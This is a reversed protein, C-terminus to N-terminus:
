KPQVEVPGELKAPGRSQAAITISQGHKTYQALVEPKGWDLDWGDEIAIVTYTGPFAQLLSFTGDMDSQDRRLFERKLEPDEPVLVVMAGSFPKGSKQAVGEITAEGAILSLTVEVSSGSSVDLKRGATVGNTSAIRVSYPTNPSGATFNYQGVSINNFTVEGEASVPRVQAARGKSDRIAIRMPVPVKSEGVVQIKAKVTSTPNGSSMDLESNTPSLEVETPENVQTRPGGFQRITYHGAPIGTIEFVGTSIGNVQGTEVREMGDFSQKQIMPMSYGHTQNGGVHVVLHLSPVPGLHIDAEVKDGGRIPISTAEESEAMDGYYTITYAVDLSSDVAAPAAAEAGRSPLGHVAYWPKAQVSVFHTGEALPTAEYSGQDDTKVQLVPRIQSIGSEHGESLVTVTANRVPEGAEDIVKGKLVPEPALQIVLSQTDFGAGTVIATSFQEHAKYSTTLFGRKEAGLSYKGAPVHFTFRGDPSTVMSVVSERNKTNGVVVRAGALPHAGVKNVVIGSVQFPGFPIESAAVLLPMCLLALGVAVVLCRLASSSPM